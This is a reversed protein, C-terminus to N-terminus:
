RKFELWNVSFINLVSRYQTNQVATSLYITRTMEMNNLRNLYILDPTQSLDGPISFTSLAYIITNLM